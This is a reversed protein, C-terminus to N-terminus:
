GYKKSLLKNIIQTADSPHPVDIFEVNAETGATQIFISGYDFLSEFYGGSKVTIDEIKGLQAVTIEKYLVAYFDIDIVRKSTVIGVNFYWNLVNFWIYSLIFVIFFINIILVQGLNLFSQLFM